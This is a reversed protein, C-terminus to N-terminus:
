LALGGARLGDGPVPLTRAHCAHAGPPRRGSPGSARVACGLGDPPRGQGIDPGARPRRFPL